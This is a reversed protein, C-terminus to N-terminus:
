FDDDDLLTDPIDDCAYNPADCALTTQYFRREAGDIKPASALEYVGTDVGFPDSVPAVFSTITYEVAQDLDVPDIREAPSQDRLGRAGVISILYNGASVSCAPAQIRNFSTPNGGGGGSTIEVGYFDDDDDTNPQITNVLTSCGNALDFAFGSAAANYFGSRARLCTTTEFKTTPQATRPAETINVTVFVQPEGGAECYDVQYHAYESVQVGDIQEAHPNSLVGNPGCLGLLTECGIPTVLGITGTPRLPASPVTATDVSFNPCPSDTHGCPHTVTETPSYSIVEPRTTLLAAKWLPLLSERDGPDSGPPPDGYPPPERRPPPLITFYGLPTLDLIALADVEDQVTQDQLGLAVEELQLTNTGDGISRFVDAEHAEGSQEGLVASGVKGSSSDDVSFLVVGAETQGRVVVGDIDDGPVLGLEDCTFVVRNSGDLMSEFLTCPRQDEDVGAVASGPAGQAGRAVSFFVRAVSVDGAFDLANLNDLPTGGTTAPQLGIRVEDTYVHNRGPASKVGFGASQFIDGPDEGEDSEERVGTGPLGEDQAPVDLVSFYYPSFSNPQHLTSLADLDDTSALGLDDARAVVENGGPVEAPGRNPSTYIASQPPETSAVGSGDLGDASGTVSFLTRFVLGNTQLAVNLDVPSGADTSADRIDGADAVAGGDVGGDRSGSADDDGCGISGSAVIGSAAIGLAATAVRGERFRGFRLM